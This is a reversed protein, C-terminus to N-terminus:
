KARDVTDVCTEAEKQRNWSFTFVFFYDNGLGKMRSFPVFPITLPKRNRRNEIPQIRAPDHAAANKWLLKWLRGNRSDELIFVKFATQRGRDGSTM